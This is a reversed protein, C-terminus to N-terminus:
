LTFDWLALERQEQEVQEATEAGAPPAIDALKLAKLVQGAAKLRLQESESELAQEVVDLAKTAMGRMRETNAAHVDKRRSNLQAVFEPSRLWASLTQPTVGVLKAAALKTSGSILSEIATIQQESLENESM